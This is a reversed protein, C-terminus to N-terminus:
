QAPRTAWALVAPMPLEIGAGRRYPELAARVDRRIADRAVPAQARLLAATRVTSGEMVDMLADASPLRWLQPVRAVDPDTFGAELLVRRCEAADSFRFFPPGPPIPADLRGHRRIADLVVGFAVAADPPAWVTFGVRGGPGLVRHAEALAREPRGLHLMGFSNVVADFAREPLPLAEADGEQFAIEPHLRRALAVMGTSFDLGVVRAGRRQAAAAVSGPGTAVDLVRVGDRVGAADLLPGAAQLTLAEFADRYGEPIAEWGTQEFRRFAAPDIPEASV